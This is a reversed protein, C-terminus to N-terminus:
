VCCSDRDLDTVDVKDELTSSDCLLGVACDIGTVGSASDDGGDAAALLGRLRDVWRAKAVIKEATCDDLSRIKELEKLIFQAPIVFSPDEEDNPKCVTRHDKGKM